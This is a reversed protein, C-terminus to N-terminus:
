MSKQAKSAINIQGNSMLKYQYFSTQRKTEIGQQEQTETKIMFEVVQM